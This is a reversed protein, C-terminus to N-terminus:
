KTEDRLSALQHDIIEPMISNTMLKYHAITRMPKGPSHQQEAKQLLIRLEAVVQRLAKLDDHKAARVRIKMVRGSKEGLWLLHENVAKSLAPEDEGLPYRFNLVIEGDAEALEVESPTDFPAAAYRVGQSAFQTAENLDPPVVFLHNRRM